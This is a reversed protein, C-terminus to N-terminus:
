CSGWGLTIRPLGSKAKDRIGLAVVSPLAPFPRNQTRAGSHGFVTIFFSFPLDCGSVPANPNQSGVASSISSERVRVRSTRTNAHLPLTIRPFPNSLKLNLPSKVKQAFRVVQEYPNARQIM